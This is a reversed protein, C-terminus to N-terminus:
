KRKPLDHVLAYRDYVQLTLCCYATSLLRGTGHGPFKTGAFDWSGDFCGDGRQHAILLPAFRANWREFRKEGAQFMALTNYYLYYTNTPWATPTQHREIHNCLSELMPDGGTAGLFVACLAGVPALDHADAGPKGIEVAGTTANWVYPFSSTGTYPDLKAHHPNAAQWAGVLWRKAGVMGDGVDLDAAAASKLAMVNWGSVSADNREPNPQVYDWVLGYGDARAQRALIVDVGRQAPERLRKDRSMAYAEAIAMTAVAHEYNRGGWVGDAGQNAVLWEIAQAIVKRYQGGGVRHTYGASNFCMLAYATCAVDGSIGVHETGPECRGGDACNLQYGDVDWRGDPSQHRKFWRLARDVREITVPTGRPRFTCRTTSTLVRSGGGGGRQGLLGKAGSGAGIAMFAGEGGTEMEAIAEERGKANDQAGDDETSAIQEDDIVVLDSHPADVEAPETVIHATPEDSPLAGHTPPPDIPPPPDIMTLPIIPAEEEHTTTLFVVLSFIALIAVHTVASIMWAPMAATKPTEAVSADM